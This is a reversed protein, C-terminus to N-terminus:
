DQIRKWNWWVNIGILWNITTSIFIYQTNLAILYKCDTCHICEFFLALVHVFGHRMIFLSDCYMMNGFLVIAYVCVFVCWRMCVYGCKLLLSCSPFGLFACEIGRFYSWDNKTKTHVLLEGEEWGGNLIADLANIENTEEKLQM